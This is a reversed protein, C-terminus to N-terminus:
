VLNHKTVRDHLGGLVWPPARRAGLTPGESPDIVTHNPRQRQGQAQGEHALRRYRTTAQTAGGGEARRGQVRAQALAGAQAHAGEQGSQLSAGKTAHQRVHTM